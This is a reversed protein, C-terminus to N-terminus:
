GKARPTYPPSHPLFMETLILPKESLRLLSYRGWLADHYGPVIFDRSLAPSAFLYRGLPSEGLTMLSKEPGSLTHEPLLTRGALWPAGDGYLIVERLWFRTEHEFGSYGAEHGLLAQRGVFGERVVEVTLERCYGELRVTMSTEESLWDSLEPTLKVSSLPLWKLQYLKRLEQVSM